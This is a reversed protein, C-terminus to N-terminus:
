PTGAVNGLTDFASSQNLLMKGVNIQGTNQSPPMYISGQSSHNDGLSQRKRHMISEKSEKRYLARSMNTYGDQSSNLKQKNNGNSVYDQENRLDKFEDVSSAPSSM